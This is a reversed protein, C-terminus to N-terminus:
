EGGFTEHACESTPGTLRVKMFAPTYPESEVPGDYGSEARRPKSRLTKFGRSQVWVLCLCVYFVLVM